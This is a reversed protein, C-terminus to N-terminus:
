IREPTWKKSVAASRSSVPRVSGSHASALVAARAAASHNPNLDPGSEGSDRLRDSAIASMRLDTLTRALSPPFGPMEAVAAFYSLEGSRRAEFVARAAVADTGLSTAPALGRAALRPAALRAALQTLSFRHLGFTAAQVRAIERALDDAAARSAGVILTEAGSPRGTIFAMAHRRREAAASAVIVSGSM